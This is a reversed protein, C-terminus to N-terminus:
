RFGARAALEELIDAARQAAGPHALERAARGMRELAGPQAALTTVERFLTEGTFAADPVLRAAGARVFAEANRLQHQDAAFPFPVLVGPRAAAALEALAGAGSRCVVLDAAAIAAPMDEIFPVVEGQLGTAAFERALEAYEEQGTQHLFRIPFGSARFLPWSERAAQNLRHSGRSGGTVLLWFSDGAPKPSIVLFEERVPLGAVEAKGRPFQAAAEEFHVLAKVALRGMWRNTLGAVANPEMLVMPTGRLWAALMAPGAVYGGMSFVAAPRHERIMGMARTVGRPLQWMTRLTRAASVGKLGGIEVYEIPFGEAPVLRAEIGRATGVFFPRHGRRRLERAVALLPIVHGGTGGGAMLFKWSASM